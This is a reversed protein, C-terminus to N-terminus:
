YNHSLFYWKTMVNSVMNTFGHRWVQNASSSTVNNCTGSGSTVNYCNLGILCCTCPFWWHDFGWPQWHSDRTPDKHHLVLYKASHFWIFIFCIKRWHATCNHINSSSAKWHAFGIIASYHCKPLGQVSFSLPWNQTVKSGKNQNQTMNFKLSYILGFVIWISSQNLCYVWIEFGVIWLDFIRYGSEYM